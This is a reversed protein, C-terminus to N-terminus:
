VSKLCFNPSYSQNHTFYVSVIIIKSLLSLLLVKIAPLIYLYKLSEPCLTPAYSQDQAFHVSVIIIKPHIALKQCTSHKYLITGVLIFLRDSHSFADLIFYKVVICMHQVSKWIIGPQFLISLDPCGTQSRVVFLGESEWVCVCVCPVVLCALLWLYAKEKGISKM